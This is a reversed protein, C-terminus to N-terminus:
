QYLAYSINAKGGGHAPCAVIRDMAKDWCSDRSPKEGRGFKEGVAFRFLQQKWDWSKKAKHTATKKM